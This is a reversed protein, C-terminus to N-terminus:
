EEPLDTSKKLLLQGEASYIYVTLTKFVGEPSADFFAEVFKQRRIEFSRGKEPQQPIGKSLPMEPIVRYIPTRLAENKAVMALTGTIPINQPNQNTLRFRVSFGGGKARRFVKLDDISVPSSVALLPTKEPSPKRLKKELTYIQSTLNKVQDVLHSQGYLLSFYEYAFFAFASAFVIGGCALIILTRKEIRLTRVEDLSRMIIILWSDSKM